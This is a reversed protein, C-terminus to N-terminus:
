GGDETCGGLPEIAKQFREGPQVDSEFQCGFQSLNLAVGVV